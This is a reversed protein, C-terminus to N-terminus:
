SDEETRVTSMILGNPQDYFHHGFNTREEVEGINYYSNFILRTKQLCELCVLTGLDPTRVELILDLNMISDYWILLGPKLRRLALLPMTMQRKRKRKRM